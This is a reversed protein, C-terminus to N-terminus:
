SSRESRILRPRLWSGTPTRPFLYNFIAVREEPTWKIYTETQDAASTRPGVKHGAWRQAADKGVIREVQTITTHRLWHATFKPQDSRRTREDIRNFFTERWKKTVRKLGRTRFAPTGTNNFSRPDYGDPIEENWGQRVARERIRNMLDVSLCAEHIRRNKTRFIAIGTAWNIDELNLQEVSHVRAATERICDLYLLSLEADDELSAANWLALMEAETLARRQNSPRTRSRVATTPTKVDAFGGVFKFLTSVADRYNSWAGEGEARRRKEVEQEKRIRRWENVESSLNEAQQEVKAATEERVKCEDNKLTFVNLQCMTKTGHYRYLRRLGTKSTELGVGPPRCILFLAIALGVPIKRGVFGQDDIDNLTMRAVGPGFPDFPEALYGEVTLQHRTIKDHM